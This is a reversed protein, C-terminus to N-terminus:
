VEISMLDEGLLVEGSFEKQVDSLISRLMDKSKPRFHTLVLKRVNNESAIRGVQGSSALIHKSTKELTKNTIEGEALYCSQILCDADRALRNLGDCAVADGSIAVAKGEAEVRYGHCNWNM